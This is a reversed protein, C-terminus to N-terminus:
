KPTVDALIVLLMLYGTMKHESTKLYWSWIWQFPPSHFKARPAKPWWTGFFFINGCDSTEFYCNRGSFPAEFFVILRCALFRFSVRKPFLVADKRNWIATLRHAAVKACQPSTLPLTEESEGRPEVSTCTTWTVGQDAPIECPSKEREKDQPTIDVATIYAHM